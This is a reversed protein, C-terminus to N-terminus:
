NVYITYIVVKCAGYSYNRDKNQKWMHFHNYYSTTFPPGTVSCNKKNM